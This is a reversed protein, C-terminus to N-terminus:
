FSHYTQHLNFMSKMPQFSFSRWTLIKNKEHSMALIFKFSPVCNTFCSFFELAYFPSLDAWIKQVSSKAFILENKHQKHNNSTFLVKFFSWILECFFKNRFSGIFIGCMNAYYVYNQSIFTIKSNQKYLIYHNFVNIHTPTRHYESSSLLM